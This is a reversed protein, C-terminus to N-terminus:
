ALMTSIIFHWLHTPLLVVRGLLSRCGRNWTKAAKLTVNKNRCWTLVNKRHPISDYSKGTVHYTWECRTLRCSSLKGHNKGAMASDTHGSNILQLYFIIPVFKSRHKLHMRCMIKFIFMNWIFVVYYSFTMVGCLFIEERPANWHVLHYTQVLSGADFVDIQLRCFYQPHWPRSPLITDCQTKDSCFKLSLFQHEIIDM